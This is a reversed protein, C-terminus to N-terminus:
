AITPAAITGTNKASAILFVCLSPEYIDDICNAAKNVAPANITIPRKAAIKM